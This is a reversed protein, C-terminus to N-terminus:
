LKKIGTAESSKLTVNIFITHAVDRTFAALYTYQCPRLLGEQLLHSKADRYLAVTWITSRVALVRSCQLSGRRVYM